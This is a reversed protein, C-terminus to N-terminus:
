CIVMKGQASKRDQNEVIELGVLYHDRFRGQDNKTVHLIATELYEPPHLSNATHYKVNFTDGVKLWPLIKSDEKVLVYMPASAPNWIKFQYILDFGKISFEASYYKDASKKHECRRHLLQRSM